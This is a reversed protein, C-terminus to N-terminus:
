EEGNLEKRCANMGAGALAFFLVTLGITYSRWDGSLFFAVIGFLPALISCTLTFHFLTHESEEGEKSKKEYLILIFADLGAFMLVIFAMFAIVAYFKRDEPVLFVALCSLAALFFCAPIFYSYLASAVRYGPAADNYFGKADPIRTGVVRETEPDIVQYAKEDGKKEIGQEKKFKSRFFRRVAVVVRRLVMIDGILLLAYTNGYVMPFRERLVPEAITLVVCLLLAIRFVWRLRKSWGTAVMQYAFNDLGGIDVEEVFKGTEPDVIHYTKKSMM